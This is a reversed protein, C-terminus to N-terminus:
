DVAVRLSPLSPVVPSATQVSAGFARRSGRAVPLAAAEQRGGAAVRVLWGGAGPLPSSRVGSSTTPPPWRRSTSPPTSPSWRRRRRGTRGTSGGCVGMLLPTYDSPHRVATISTGPAVNYRPTPREGIRHAFRPYISYLSFRSCM